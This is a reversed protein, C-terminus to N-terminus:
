TILRTDFYRYIHLKLLIFLISNLINQITIKKNGNNLNKISYLKKLKLNISSVRPM